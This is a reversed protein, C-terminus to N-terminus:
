YGRKAIGFGRKAARLIKKKNVAGGKKFSTRTNIISGERSGRAMGGRKKNIVGKGILIDKQTVKGDGSLDPFGGDKMKIVGGRKKGMPKDKNKARRRRQQEAKMIAEDKKSRKKPKPNEQEFEIAYTRSASEAMQEPTTNKMAEEVAKPDAYNLLEDKKSM